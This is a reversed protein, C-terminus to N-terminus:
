TGFRVRARALARQAVILKIAFGAACGRWLSGAEEGRDRERGALRGANAAGPQCHRYADPWGMGSDPRGLPLPRTGGLYKPPGLSYSWSFRAVAVCRRRVMVICLRTWGVIGRFRLDAQLPPLRRPASKLFIRGSPRSRNPTPARPLTGLQCSGLAVSGLRACAPTDAPAIRGRKSAAIVAAARTSRFRKKWTASPWRARRQM